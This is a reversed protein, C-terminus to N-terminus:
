YEDALLVCTSSRDAETIVYIKDKGLKYASLIRLGCAIATENARKDEEGLDGWDGSQHRQVYVFVGQQEAKLIALVAPTAVLRGLRFKV